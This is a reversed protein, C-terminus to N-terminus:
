TIRLICYPWVGHTELGPIAMSRPPSTTLLFEGDKTKLRRWEGQPVVATAGARAFVLSNSADRSVRFGPAFDDDGSGSAAILLHGKADLLLGDTAPRSGCVELRIRATV